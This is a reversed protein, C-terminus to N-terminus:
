EISVMVGNKVTKVLVPSDIIGAEDVTLRGLVGDYDKLNQIQDAIYKTSPKDEGKYSEAANVILNFADYANPGGFAIDKKYVDKYEKVFVDSAAGFGISWLGEYLSKNPSLEFYIATSMNGLGLEKMQKSLIDLEPPISLVAYLDAKNVASKIIISRFDRDGSKFEQDSVIEIGYESSLKVISNYVALIGPNNLHFIGLTKLGRKDMETLFARASTDPTHFHIFNYEGEAARADFAIGIHVVQTEEAIPAIINGIPAYADIIADVKDITILKQAVTAASKPDVQTDEFIVDYKYKTNKLKSQALNIADRIGEGAFGNNGTMPVAVGIRIVTKEGIRNNNLGIVLLVLVIIVGVISWIKKNM